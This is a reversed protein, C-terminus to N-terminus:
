LKTQGINCYIPKSKANQPTSLSLDAHLTQASNNKPIVDVRNIQMGTETFQLGQLELLQRGCCMKSNTIGVECSM